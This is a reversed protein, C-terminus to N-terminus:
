AAWPSAEPPASNEAPSGSSRPVGTAPPREPEQIRFPARLDDIEGIGGVPAAAEEVFAGPSGCSTVSNRANMHPPSRPAPQGPAQARGTVETPNLDLERWRAPDHHHRLAPRPGLTLGPGPLLGPPPTLAHPRAAGPPPPARDYEGAHGRQGDSRAPAGGGPARGVM